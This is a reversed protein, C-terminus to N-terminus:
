NLQFKAILNCNAASDFDQVLHAIEPNPHRKIFEVLAKKCCGLTDVFADCHSNPCQPLLTLVKESALQLYKLEYGSDGISRWFQAMNHCSIVSIVLRDELEIQESHSIEESLTLAQQYHLVGRLHDGDRLALDAILTHREWDNITM